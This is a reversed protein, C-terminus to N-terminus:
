GISPGGQVRPAQAAQQEPAGPQVRAAAALAQMDFLQGSPSNQYNQASREMVAPDGSSEFIARLDPDMLPSARNPSDLSSQSPNPVPPTSQAPAANQPQQGIDQQQELVPPEFRATTLVYNWTQNQFNSANPHAQGTVAQLFPDYEGPAMTQCGASDNANHSGRHIKFSGDLDDVGNVDNADFRGDANTDRQIQGHGAAVAAATPRLAFDTGGGPRPHTTAQMEYTGDALRGLDRIGDHNADEGEAKKFKVGEYGPSPGTEVGGASNIHKRAHEDYQATPETNASLTEHFHRNGQADTWLVVLRDDYRGKGPTKEGDLSNLTSYNENRLGLMLRQGPQDLDDRAAPSGRLRAISAYVDFKQEDTLGALENRANSRLKATLESNTPANPSYHHDNRRDTGQRVVVLEVDPVRPPQTEVAHLRNLTPAFVLSDAAQQTRLAQLEASADIVVYRDLAEQVAPREHERARLQNLLELADAPRQEKLLRTVWGASERIDIGSPTTPYPNTM